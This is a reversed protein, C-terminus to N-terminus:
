GRVEREMDEVLDFLRDVSERTTPIITLPVLQRVPRHQDLDCRAVGDPPERDYFATQSWSDKAQSMPSSAM